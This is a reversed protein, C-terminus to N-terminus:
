IYKIELKKFYKIPNFPKLFKWTELHLHDYFKKKVMYPTVTTQGINCGAEYLKFPIFDKAKMHMFKLTTGTEMGKFVFTYGWKKQWKVRKFICDEPLVINLKKKKDDTVIRLDVGKHFLKFGKRVGYWSTIKQRARKVIQRM